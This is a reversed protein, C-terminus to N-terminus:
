KTVRFLVHTPTLVEQEDIDRLLFAQYNTKEGLIETRYIRPTAYVEGGDYKFGIFTSDAPAETMRMPPGEATLCRKYKLWGSDDYAKIECEVIEPKIEYGPRLRYTYVNAFKNIHSADHWEQGFRQFWDGAGREIEKAKAQMEENTFEDTSMLGFPEKNIQLAKIIDM